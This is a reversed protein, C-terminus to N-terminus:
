LGRGRRLEDELQDIRSSKRDIIRNAEDLARQLPGIAAEVATQIAKAQRDAGAQASQRALFFVGALAAFIGVVVYVTNLAQGNV